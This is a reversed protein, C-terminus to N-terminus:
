GAQLIKGCGTYKVWNVVADTVVTGMEIGVAVIMCESKGLIAKDLQLSVTSAEIGQKALYWPTSFSVPVTWGGSFGKLTIDEVAGLSLILRYVPQQWPLVISVGPQLAPIEIRAAAKKRDLTVSLPHRVVSDFLHQENLNFGSLQTGFRSFLVSRSGPDHAQDQLLLQRCLATFQSALNVDTLHKVPAIAMRLSKAASSCVGFEKNNQRVRECSPLKEIQKASPGGNKRVIYGDKEERNRPLYFNIGELKGEFQILSKRLAM